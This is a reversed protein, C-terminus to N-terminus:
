TRNLRKFRTACYNSCPRNFWFVSFCFHWKSSIKDSAAGPNDVGTVFIEEIHRLKQKLTAMVYVKLVTAQLLVHHRWRISVKKANSARQAPFEGTVPSNGKCLGTVRLKSTKKSMTLSHNSVGDRGNHRWQLSVLGAPTEALLRSTTRSSFSFISRHSYLQWKRGNRLVFYCKLGRIQSTTVLEVNCPCLFSQIKFDLSPRFNKKLSKRCNRSKWLHFGVFSRCLCHLALM